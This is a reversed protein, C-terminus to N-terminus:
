REDNITVSEENVDFDSRSERRRPFSLKVRPWGSDGGHCNDACAFNVGLSILTAVGHRTM